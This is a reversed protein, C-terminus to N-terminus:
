LLFVVGSRSFFVCHVSTVAIFCEKFIELMALERSLNQGRPTQLQAELSCQEM